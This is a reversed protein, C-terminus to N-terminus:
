PGTHAGLCVGKAEREIMRCNETVQNLKGHNVMMNSKIHGLIELFSM